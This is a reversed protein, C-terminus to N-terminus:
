LIMSLPNNFLIVCLYEMQLIAFEFDFKVPVQRVVSRRIIIRERPEQFRQM